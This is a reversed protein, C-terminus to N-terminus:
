VSRAALRANMLADQHAVLALDSQGASATILAHVAGSSRSLAEPTPAGKLQWSLFAAALVDGTGSPAPSIRPASTLWAEHATVAMTGIQGDACPCSTALVLPRMLLRAAAMMSEIDTIDHGTLHALEFRNPTVIDALPLLTHQIAEAVGPRAYVGGEDGFVPDCLYVTGPNHAKVLTVATKVVDAQQASGLYGSVVADIGNLLNRRELGQLLVDMEDARFAKGDFGQPGPVNSFLVTPLPLVEVGLRQMVFRAATNGVRGHVVESQISLVRPPSTVSMACIQM